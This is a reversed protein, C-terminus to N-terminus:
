LMHYVALWPIIEDIFRKTFHYKDIQGMIVMNFSVIDITCIYICIVQGDFHKNLPQKVISWRVKVHGLRLLSCVIHIKYSIIQTSLRDHSKQIAYTSFDAFWKINTYGPRLLWGMMHHKYPMTKIACDSWTAKQHCLRLLWYIMNSKCLRYQM